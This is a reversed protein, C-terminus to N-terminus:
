NKESFCFNVQSHSPSISFLKFINSPSSRHSSAFNFLTSSSSFHTAYSMTKIGKFLFLSCKHVKRTLIIFSNLGRPMQSFSHSFSKSGWYKLVKSPLRLFQGKIKVRCSKHSADQQGKLWGGRVFAGRHRQRQVVELDGGLASHQKEKLFTDIPCNVLIHVEVRM